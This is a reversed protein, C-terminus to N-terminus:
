SFQSGWISQVSSCAINAITPTIYIYIYTRCLPTTLRLPTSRHNSPQGLNSPLGLEKKWSETEGKNVTGGRGRGEKILLARLICGLPWPSCQLSGIHPRPRLGLRFRIKYMKVGFDSM